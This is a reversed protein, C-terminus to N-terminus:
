VPPKGGDNSTISVVQSSSKCGAISPIPPSAVFRPNLVTPTSTQGLDCPSLGRSPADDSLPNYGIPWPDILHPLIASMSEKHPVPTALVRDM